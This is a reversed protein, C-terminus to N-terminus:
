LKPIACIQWMHTTLPLTGTKGWNGHLVIDIPAEDLLAAYRACEAQLNGANGNIYHVAHFPAIDFLRTRLFTALGRRRMRLCASMNM